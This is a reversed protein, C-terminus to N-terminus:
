KALKAKVAINVAKGDARGRVRLMLVKMVEGIDKMSSAGTEAITNEILEDLEESSLQRPLFEKIIEYEAREKKELDERGGKRFEEIAESRKKAASSLVAVIEDDTLEHGLEIQKYQLDSKLMRLTQLRENDRTKLAEKLQVDIREVLTM